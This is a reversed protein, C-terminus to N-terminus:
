KFEKLAAQVEQRLLPMTQPDDRLTRLQQLIDPRTKVRQGGIARLARVAIVRGDDGGREAPDGAGAGTEGIGTNIASTGLYIRIHSDKLYELLVDLVVEPVKDAQIAGLLAASHYRLLKAEQMRPEMLVGGLAGLFAADEKLKEQHGSLIWLTRERVKVPNSRDKLLAILTPIAEQAKAVPGIRTLALAAQVRMPVDERSDTLIRLLHPLAPEAEKKLGGLAFAANRRLDADSSGLAKRLPDLAARATPGINGLAAAAQRRLGPEGTELAELLVPVAAKGEEGGINGLALAANRRAEIEPDGLARRLPEYAEKDKITVMGVVAGLAARRVEAHKHQCLALLEPLASHGQRGFGALASAADRLVLYDQDRLAIRLAFVNAAGLKGLAWAANQRVEPSPDKLARELAGGASKAGLNGLAVAASRRVLATTDRALTDRLVAVVDDIKLDPDYGRAIEGIANAAAERVASEPDERLLKLLQPMQRSASAGLKGLAFVAERRTSAQRHDLDKVWVALPKGLYTAPQAPCPVVPLVLGFLGLLPLLLRSM